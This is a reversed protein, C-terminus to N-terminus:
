AILAAWGIVQDFSDDEIEVAHDDVGLLNPIPHTATENLRVAARPAVVTGAV